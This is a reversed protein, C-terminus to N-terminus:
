KAPAAYESESVVLGPGRDGVSVVVCRYVVLIGLRSLVDVQRRGHRRPRVYNQMTIKLEWDSSMRNYGSMAERGRGRRQARTTMSGIVKANSLASRNWRALTM